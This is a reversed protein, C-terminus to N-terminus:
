NTGGGSNRRGHLPSNGCGTICLAEHIGIKKARYAM